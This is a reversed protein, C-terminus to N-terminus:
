SSSYQASSLPTQQLLLKCYPIQTLIDEVAISGLLFGTPAMFALGSNLNKTAM